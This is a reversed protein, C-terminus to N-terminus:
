SCRKICQACIWMGGKSQSEQGHFSLQSVRVSSCDFRGQKESWSAGCKFGHMPHQCNMCTFHYDKNFPINPMGCLDGAACGVANSSVASSMSPTSSEDEGDAALQLQSPERKRKGTKRANGGGNNAGNVDDSADRRAPDPMIPLRTKTKRVTDQAAAAKGSKCSKVAICNQYIQEFQPFVMKYLEPDEKAMEVIRGNLKNIENYRMLKTSPVSVRKPLDVVSGASNSGETAAGATTSASSSLFTPLSASGLGPIEMLDIMDQRVIHYLPSNTIHWRPHLTDNDKMSRSPHELLARQIYRDRIFTSTHHHFNSQCHPTDGDLVPDPIFVLREM